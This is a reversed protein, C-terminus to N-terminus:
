RGAQSLRPVAGGAPERPKAPNGRHGERRPLRCLGGQGRGQAPHGPVRRGPLPSRPLHHLTQLPFHDLKVIQAFFAPRGPIKEHCTTCLEKVPDMIAGYAIHRDGAGHCAECTQASHASRSWVMDVDAHCKACQTADGLRPQLSAWHAANDERVLGILPISVQSTVTRVSLAAGVVLLLLLGARTLHSVASGGRARGGPEQRHRCTERGTAPHRGHDTRHDEAATAQIVEHREYVEATNAETGVIVTLAPAVDLLSAKVDGTAPEEELVIADPHMAQLAQPSVAHVPLTTVSLQDNESLARAIAEGFLRHQFIVVVNRHRM